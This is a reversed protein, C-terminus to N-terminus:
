ENGNEKKEGFSWSDTPTLREPQLPKKVEVKIEPEPEYINEERVAEFSNVGVTDEKINQIIYYIYILCIALKVAYFYPVEITYDFCLSLISNIVLLVTTLTFTATKAYISITFSQRDSLKKNMGKALMKVALLLLLATLVYALTIGIYFFITIVVSIILLIVTAKPAISYIFEDRTIVENESLDLENFKLLSKQGLSDKILIADKFVYFNNSSKDDTKSEAMTEDTNIYVYVNRYVEDIKEEMDLGKTSLSFDPIVTKWYATISGYRTFFAIGMALIILLVRFLPLLFIYATKKSSKYKLFRNYAKPKFISDFIDNFIQM